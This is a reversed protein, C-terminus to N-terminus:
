DPAASSADGLLRDLETRIMALDAAVQADHAHPRLAVLRPQLEIQLVRAQRRAELLGPVAATAESEGARQESERPSTNRQAVSQPDGDPLEDDSPPTLGSEDDDPRPDTNRQAVGPRVQGITERLQERPVPGTHARRGAIFQVLRPQEERPASLLEQAESRTIQGAVMADALVPNEYVRAVRSVKSPAIGLKAAIQRVSHGQRLLGIYAEAEEDDSLNARQLNEILADLYAQEDSCERVLVPVEELGALVAARHRREGVVISYADDGLPRVVLPQLVGRERVSAALEELGQSEFRKRPQHPNPKVRTIAVMKAGPLTREGPTEVIQPRESLIVRERLASRLDRKASPM